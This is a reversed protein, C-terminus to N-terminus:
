SRTSPIMAQIYTDVCVPTHPYKKEFHAVIRRCVMGSNEYNASPLMLLFQSASCRTIVDGKRLVMVMLKELNEMALALSKESVEKETKPKLTLLVTHIVHGTRVISRAQSQYLIRFFDYDCVMAGDITDQENLQEMAEEPTVVSSRKDTQLAQRYLARSERDPMVGFTSLLLKSMEEYIRVVELRDGVVLLFRMLHQRITESYPDSELAKRCVAVGESYRGEQELLPVVGDILSKYVNQYYNQLPMAWAEASQLPLFKGEYLKLAALYTETNEPNRVLAAVLRDFADTDLVMEVKPNWMYGGSKSVVIQASNEIVEGLIARARHIATRMAGAPNDNEQKWVVSILEEAPILKGRNCLLYALINWTLKSRNSSCSIQKGAYAFSFQGLMQVHLIDPKM